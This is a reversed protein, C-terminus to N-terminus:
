LIFSLVILVVIVAGGLIGIRKIAPMVYYYRSAYDQTGAVPKAIPQHEVAPRAIPQQEAFPKAVSQYEAAPKVQQPHEIPIAKAVKARHKAKTRRSKKPM